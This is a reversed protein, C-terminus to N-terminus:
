IHKMLLRIMNSADQLTWSKCFDPLLDITAPLTKIRSKESENLDNVWKIFIDTQKQNESSMKEETAM